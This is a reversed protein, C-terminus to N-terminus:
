LNKFMDITYDLIDIGAAKGHGPIIVQADKYKLKIQSVTNSWEEVNADVLNGKGAGQSKILCGGFLVKDKPFYCIINDKTHGEGVFENIVKNEGVELTLLADFGNKPLTEVENEKALAITLANAYSPINKDHFTQLGGLCDVHFHTVVVKKVEAKVETEIWNILEQSAVDDTPTDFIIAEGKNIVVMGNCAVKGFDNTNLYSIHVYTHPSLQEIKLNESEYQYAIENPTKCAIFLFLILGLLYFNCNM